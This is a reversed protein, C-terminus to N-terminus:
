EDKENASVVITQGYFIYEVGNLALLERETTNFKEAVSKPTDFLQVKYTVAKQKELYLIDGEAIEKTLGNLAIISTQPISFRDSILAVSDGKQVRYFFKTM